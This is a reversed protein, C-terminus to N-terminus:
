TLRTTFLHPLSSSRQAQSHCSVSASITITPTAATAIATPAANVPCEYYQKEFSGKSIMAVITIGMKSILFSLKATVWPLILVGICM